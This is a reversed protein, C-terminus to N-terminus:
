HSSGGLAAWGFSFSHGAGADVDVFCCFAGRAGDELLERALAEFFLSFDALEEAGERLLDQGADGGVCTPLAAEFNRASSTILPESSYIFSLRSSM